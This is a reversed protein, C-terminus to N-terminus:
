VEAAKDAADKNAKAGGMFIQMQIAGSIAIFPVCALIVLALKWGYIFAIILATVMSVVSQVVAGLRTGTAGKVESADTALRNCLAGTTHARDDFWGM